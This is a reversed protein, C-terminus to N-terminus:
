KKKKSSEKEAEPDVAWGQKIVEDAEGTPLDQPIGVFYASKPPKKTFVVTKTGEKKKKAM